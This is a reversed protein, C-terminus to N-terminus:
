NKPPKPWVAGTKEVDKIQKTPLEALALYGEFM